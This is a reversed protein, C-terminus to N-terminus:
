RRGLRRGHHRRHHPPRQGQRRQRPQPARLLRRSGRQVQLPQPAHPHLHPLLLSQTPSPGRYPPTGPRPFRPLQTREGHCEGKLAGHRGEGQVARHTGGSPNVDDQDVIIQDAVGKSSAEFFIVLPCFLLLSVFIVVANECM